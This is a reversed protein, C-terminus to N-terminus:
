RFTAIEEIPKKTIEPVLADATPYGVVLMLFPRGNAPRELIENLFGM